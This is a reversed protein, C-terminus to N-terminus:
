LILGITRLTYVCHSTFNNQVYIRTVEAEPQHHSSKDELNMIKEKRDQSVGKFYKVQNPSTINLSKKRQSWIGRQITLM